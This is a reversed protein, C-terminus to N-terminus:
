NRRDPSQRWSHTPTFGLMSKAKSVDYFSQTGPVDRTFPVGPFVEDLLERSPRRMVSDENAIIFAEMGTLRCEVALRVAQAADRVDIYTWLNWKRIQPDDQWNELGDYDGADPDLVNSFRLCILKMAPHERAYQEALHEGLLKSHAYSVRSERVAETIPVSAPPGDFPYGLLTESSAWVVNTIGLRKCAEFINYTSVINEAFTVHDPRQAPGPIAALHVVADIAGQTYQQDIGSLAGMVEGFDTLNVITTPGQPDKPHTIDLNLVDHGHAQLDRITARGLKGSGGTVIIKM